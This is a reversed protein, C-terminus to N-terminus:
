TGIHQVATNDIHFVIKLPIVAAAKTTILVPFMRLSVLRDEAGLNM